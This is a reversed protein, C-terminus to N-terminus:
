FPIYKLGIKDRLYKGVGNIIPGLVLLRPDDGFYAPIGALALGVLVRAFRKLATLFKKM